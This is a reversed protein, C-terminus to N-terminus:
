HLSICGLLLGIVALLVPVYLPCRGMVSIITSILASLYLICLVTVPM